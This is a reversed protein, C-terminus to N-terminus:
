GERRLEHLFRRADLLEGRAAAAKGDEILQLEQATAQVPENPDGIWVTVLTGEELPDKDDLVITGEVVTGTRIHM